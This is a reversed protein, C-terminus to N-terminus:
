SENIHDRLWEFNSDHCISIFWIDIGVLGVILPKSLDEEKTIIKYRNSDTCKSHPLGTEIDITHVLFMNVEFWTDSNQDDNLTFIFSIEGYKEASHVYVFRSSKTFKGRKGADYETIGTDQVKSSSFKNLVNVNGVVSRGLIHELMSKQSTALSQSRKRKKPRNKPLSDEDSTFSVLIEEVRTSPDIKINKLRGALIVDNVFDAMRITQIASAEPHKRSMVRRTIFSNLREFFFM